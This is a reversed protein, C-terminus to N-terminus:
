YDIPHPVGWNKAGFGSAAEQSNPAGPMVNANRKPKGIEAQLLIESTSNWQLKWGRM